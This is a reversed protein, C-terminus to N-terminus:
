IAPYYLCVDLFHNHQHKMKALQVKVLSRFTLIVINVVDKITMDIIETIKYITRIKISCKEYAFPVGGITLNRLLIKIAIQVIQALMIKNTQKRM